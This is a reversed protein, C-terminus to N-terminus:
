GEMLHLTRIERNTIHGTIELAQAELYNEDSSSLQQRHLEEVIQSCINEIIELKLPAPAHEVLLFELPEALTGLKKQMRLARFMWKYYPPFNRNLLFIMSVAARVFEGLALEAAGKEGHKLTRAFNYQGSQAMMAARAAIKKRRVDEPMATRLEERMRTFIGPNDMFLEGNVAEAFAYEPIYLWQRWNQPVGPIGLHRNFFDEITCVGQEADGAVSSSSRVPPPADKLLRNYARVLKFGCYPEEKEQIWISVGATFDHDRSIEDDFGFCESGHGALGIAAFDLLSGCEKQLLPLASEEFWRKALEIGRM